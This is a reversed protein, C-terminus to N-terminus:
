QNLPLKVKVMTGKGKQGSIEIKGGVFGIREQMGILGLSKPNKLQEASIGSGNDRIVIEIADEELWMKIDVKTAKAHRAVNTLTEQVLRYVPIIIDEPIDEDPVSNSFNCKIGTRKTFDDLYWEMAPLLGLDDLISPRLDASIRRTQTITNDVLEDMNKLRSLIEENDGADEELLGLDIRIATLAQGLEDHIERSIRTRKQEISDRLYNTLQKLRISYDRIEDEAKQRELEAQKAKTIDALSVLVKGWSDEYGPAISANIICNISKGTITKNEVESSFSGKNQYLAVLEDKFSHLSDGTFIRDLNGFIQDVSEAELLKVTEQNVTLIEVMRACKVIDEPHENLYQEIDTVGEAILGDLYTKIRSFDEEWLSVPSNNFISRYRKESDRLEMEYQKRQTIDSCTYMVTGGMINVRKIHISLLIEDGKKTRIPLEIIDNTAFDTIGSQLMLDNQFMVSINEMAWIEDVSYGLVPVVSSGIFTFSGSDDTIFIPNSVNELTIRNLEESERLAKDTLKRDTIDKVVHVAGILGGHDNKIPDVTVEIWANDIQLERSERQKSIKMKLIPCEPIPEEQGHVLEWCHKNTIEDPQVQLWNLTAENHRLIRGDLDVLWIADSMADFTTQWELALKKLDNQAQKRDTIENIFGELVQPEIGPESVVIGREWVWHVVGQSDIIRYEIEFAKDDDISKQIKDWIANRDDPFVLDNYSLVKNDILNDVPYGFIRTFGESLYKMSWQEDNLCRYAVGPLNGILINLRRENEVISEENRRHGIVTALQTLLIEFRERDKRGPPLESSSAFGISESGTVLPFVYMDKVDLTKIVTPIMKRLLSSKTMEMVLTIIDDYGNIHAAEGKMFLSKHMSGETLPIVPLVIKGGIITEVKRFLKESLGSNQLHLEQYDRSALYIAVGFGPFFSITNQSFYECLERISKGSRSLDNLSNILELDQSKQFLEVEVNKRDSIDRITIMIVAEGNYVTRNLVIEEPFSRGSKTKGYWEFRQTEGAMALNIYKNAEKDTTFARDALIINRDTLLEERTYGFLKVTADNVAVIERKQNQIIIADSTLNFVNNLNEQTLATEQEAQRTATIDNFTAQLGAVKGGSKIQGIYALIDHRSGDKLQWSIEVPPIDEGKFFQRFLTKLQPLDRPRFGSLQTFHKGIIEDKDYGIITMGTSNISTIVGKLNITVIGQPSLEILSRYREESEILQGRAAKRDTVDEVTGDYYSLKGDVDKIAKASERIHISTGDRCVWAAEFGQVVGYEQVQNRFRERDQNRLYLKKDLNRKSLQEFNEFGLMSLLAQNAMIFEGSPTSRYIGITANEFFSSFLEDRANLQNFIHIKELAQKISQNVQEPEYKKSLCYFSGNEVATKVKSPSPNRTFTICELPRNASKIEALIDFGKNHKLDIDLLVLDTESESIIDIIPKDSGIEQFVLDGTALTSSLLKRFRLDDSVLLIVNNM